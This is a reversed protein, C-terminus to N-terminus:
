RRAAAARKGAAKVHIGRRDEERDGSVQRDLARTSGGSEIRGEHRGDDPHDPCHPWSGTTENEGLVVQGPAEAGPGKEGFDKGLEALILALIEDLRRM